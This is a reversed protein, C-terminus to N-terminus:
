NRRDITMKAVFRSGRSRTVFSEAASERFIFNAIWRLFFKRASASSPEQRAGLIAFTWHVVQNDLMIVFCGAAVSIAGRSRSKCIRL